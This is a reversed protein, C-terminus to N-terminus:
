AFSEGCGEIGGKLTHGEWFEQVGLIQDINFCGVFSGDHGIDRFVVKDHGLVLLFLVGDDCLFEMCDTLLGLFM